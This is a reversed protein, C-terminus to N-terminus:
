SKKCQFEWIQEENTTTCSDHTGKQKPLLCTTIQFRGSHSKAFLMGITEINQRSNEVAFRLFKPGLLAPVTVKQHSSRSGNPPAIVKLGPVLFEKFLLLLDAAGPVPKPEFINKGSISISEEFLEFLWSKSKKIITNPAPEEPLQLLMETFRGGSILLGRYIVTHIV